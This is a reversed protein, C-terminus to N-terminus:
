TRYSPFHTHPVRLQCCDTKRFPPIHCLLNNHSLRNQVIKLLNDHATYDAKAFYYGKKGSDNITVIVRDWEAGPADFEYPNVSMEM